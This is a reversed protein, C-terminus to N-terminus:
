YHLIRNRRMRQVARVNQSVETEQRLCMRTVGCEVEGRAKGVRTVLGFEGRQEM